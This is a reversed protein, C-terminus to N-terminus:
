RRRHLLWYQFQEPPRPVEVYQTKVEPAPPAPQKPETKELMKTEPYPGGVPVTSADLGGDVMPNPYGKEFPDIKGAETEAWALWDSQAKSLDGNGARRWQKECSEIYAAMGQAEIWQQAATSLNDRRAEAIEELKAEHRRVREREKRVKEEQARREAEKAQREAELRAQEERQKAWEAERKRQEDFGRFTAEVKEVICGLLEEVSQGDGETWKRKGRLGFANVEISLKGSAKTEKLQWSWSPRRKDADTPAREIEVRAENWRLEVQDKDRTIQLGQFESNSSEFEYDRDELECVVAHMSRVLNPVIAMSVDCTFLDKGKVAVFELQGPKARELARLHRAAIPHLETGEAPLNVPNPRSRRGATLLNNAAWAERRSNNEAVDFKVVVDQGEKAASLREKRLKEGAQIRAWYGRTPRPIGLRRCTKALAVDSLGLTAALKICPTSWIAEYLQERTYNVKAPPKPDEPLV